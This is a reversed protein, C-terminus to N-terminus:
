TNSVPGTNNFIQYDLEISCYGPPFNFGIKIKIKGNELIKALFKASEELNQRTNMKVKM